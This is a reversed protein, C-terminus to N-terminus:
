FEFFRFTSPETSTSIGRVEYFSASVLCVPNEKDRTGGSERLNKSESFPSITTLWSGGRAEAEGCETPEKDAESM